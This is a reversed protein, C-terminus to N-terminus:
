VAVEDALRYAEKTAGRSAVAASYYIRYSFRAPRDVAEEVILQRTEAPLELVTNRFGIHEFRQRDQEISISGSWAAFGHPPHHAACTRSPASSLPLAM